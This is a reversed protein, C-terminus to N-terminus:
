HTHGHHSGNGIGAESHSGHANVENVEAVNGEWSKFALASMARQLRPLVTVDTKVTEAIKTGGSSSLPM